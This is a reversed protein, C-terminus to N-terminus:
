EDEVWNVEVEETGITMSVINEIEGVFDIVEHIRDLLTYKTETHEPLLEFTSYNEVKM